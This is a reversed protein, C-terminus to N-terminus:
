DTRLAEVPAIAAARRAPLWSAVLAAAAIAVTGVVYSTTDRPTVGFLQSQLLRAAAGAGVLGLALGLGALLGGERVVLATVERPRAGLALRM